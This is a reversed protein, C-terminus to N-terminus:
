QLLVFDIAGANRIDKAKKIGVIVKISNTNPRKDGICTCSLPYIIAMIQQTANSSKNM